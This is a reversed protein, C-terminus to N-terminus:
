SGFHFFTVICFTYVFLETRVEKEKGFVDRGEKFIRIVVQRRDRLVARTLLILTITLRRRLRWVHGHKPFSQERLRLPRESRGEGRAASGSRSWGVGRVGSGLSRSTSVPRLAGSGLSRSTSVPRLAGSGRRGLTSLPRATRDLWASFFRFFFGFSSWWWTRSHLSATWCLLRSRRGRNHLTYSRQHSVLLLWPNLMSAAWWGARLTGMPDAGGVLRRVSSGVLLAQEGVFSGRGPCLQVEGELFFDSTFM